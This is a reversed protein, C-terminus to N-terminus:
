YIEGPWAPMNKIPPVLRWRAESYATAKFNLRFVTGTLIMYNVSLVLCTCTCRVHVRCKAWIRKFLYKKNPAIHSNEFRLDFCQLVELLIYSLISYLKGSSIGLLLSHVSLALTYTWHANCGHWVISQNFICHIMICVSLELIRKKSFMSFRLFNASAWPVIVNACPMIKCKNFLCVRLFLACLYM